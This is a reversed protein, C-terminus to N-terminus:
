ESSEGTPTVRVTGSMGNLMVSISRGEEDAVTLRASSTTGDPYFLVTAAGSQGENSAQAMTVISDADSVLISVISIGDPMGQGFDSAGSSADTATTTMGTAETVAGVADATSLGASSSSSYSGESLTCLWIQTEGAQMAQARTRTWDAAIAQAAKRLRENRLTSRYLPTASAAVVVMLALVIMIELLTFAGRGQQKMSSRTHM